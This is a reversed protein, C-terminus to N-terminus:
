TNNKRIDKIRYMEMDANHILEELTSIKPTIEVAGISASLSFKEAGAPFTHVKFARRIKKIVTLAHKEDTEPLFAVFEDGGTRGLIDSERFQGNLLAAVEKLVE